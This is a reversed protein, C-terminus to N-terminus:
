TARATRRTAARGPTAPARRHGAVVAVGEAEAATAGAGATVAAEEAIVAMAAVAAGAGDVEAPDGADDARTPAPPRRCTRARATGLTPRRQRAM